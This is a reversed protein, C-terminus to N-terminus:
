RLNLSLWDFKPSRSNIYFGSTTMPTHRHKQRETKRVNKKGGNGGFITHLEVCDVVAVVVDVVVVNVFLSIIMLYNSFKNVFVNERGRKTNSLRNRIAAAM